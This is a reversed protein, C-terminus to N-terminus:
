GALGRPFRAEWDEIPPTARELAEAVLRGLSHDPEDEFCRDVACWALAGDGQTWAAFALVGAAGSVLGDPARRVLDTWLRM